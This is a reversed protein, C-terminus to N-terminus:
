DGVLITNASEGPKIFADLCDVQCFYSTIVNTVYECHANEAETQDAFIQWGFSTLVAYTEKTM